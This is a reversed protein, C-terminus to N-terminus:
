QVFAAVALAYADGGDVLHEGGAQQFESAPLAVAVEVVGHATGAGHEDLGGHHGVVDGCLVVSSVTEAEHFPFFEVEALPLADLVFFVALNAGDVEFALNPAVIDVFGDDLLALLIEFVGLQVLVDHKVYAVEGVLLRGLALGEDDGVRGVALADLDFVEVGHILLQAVCELLLIAGITVYPQNGAVELGHLVDPEM